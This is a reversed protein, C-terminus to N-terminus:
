QRVAVIYRPRGTLDFHGEIQWGSGCAEVLADQQVEAHEMILVGGPRLMRRAVAIVARPVLLGDAGGGYLALPPDHERVELDVPVAGPPIYPPNSVVVDVDGDTIGKVVCSGTEGSAMIRVDGQHLHVPISLADVNRQAWRIAADSLEVGHVVTGPVEAAISLAIAASGACLDMVLPAKGAAMFKSAYAIATGAVLETEPRPLFVGPGVALDLTRFSSRGSLHQVPVRACRQDILASYEAGLHLEDGRALAVRLDARSLSLVVSALIEADTRPNPVGAAALRQAATHM